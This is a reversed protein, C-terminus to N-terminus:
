DVQDMRAIHSVARNRLLTRGCESGERQRVKLPQKRAPRLRRPSNENSPKDNLNDQLHSLINGHPAPSLAKPSLASTAPPTLALSPSLGHQNLDLLSSPNSPGNPQHNSTNTSSSSLTQSNDVENSHSPAAFSTKDNNESLKVSDISQHFNESALESERETEQQHSTENVEPPIPSNPNSKATFLKSLGLNVWYPVAFAMM